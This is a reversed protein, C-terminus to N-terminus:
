TTKGDPNTLNGSPGSRTGSTQQHRSMKGSPPVDISSSTREVAGPCGAHLWEDYFEDATMTSDHLAQEFGTVFSLRMWDIGGQRAAEQLLRPVELHAGATAPIGLAECLKLFAEAMEAQMEGIREDNRM